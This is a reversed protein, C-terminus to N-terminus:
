RFTKGFERDIGRTRILHAIKGAFLAPCALGYYGFLLIRLDQGLVVGQILAALTLTNMMVHVEVSKHIGAATRRLMKRTLVGRAPDSQSEAPEPMRLTLRPEQALREFFTKYKVDHVANFLLVSLAASFSWAAAVRPGIADDLGLGLFFVISPHILHHSMFDLFRGTLCNEKRYRAVQGDVHDLFYWAQLLLAGAAFAGWGPMSLCLSGALGVAASLLTIQNASVPTHLFLWTVPVAADRLFTRVMWNGVEKYRPKQCQVSLEKIGPINGRKVDDPPM